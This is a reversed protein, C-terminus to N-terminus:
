VKEIIIKGTDAQAFRKVTDVCQFAEPRVRLYLTLSFSSKVFTEIINKIMNKIM